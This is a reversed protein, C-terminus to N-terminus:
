KPTYSRRVKPIERVLRDGVRRDVAVGERVGPPVREKEVRNKLARPSVGVGGSRGLTEVTHDGEVVCATAAGGLARDRVDIDEETVVIRPAGDGGANVATTVPVVPLTKPTLPTSAAIPGRSTM